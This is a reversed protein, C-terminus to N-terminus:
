LLQLKKSLSTNLSLNSIIHLLYVDVGSVMTCVWIAENEVSNISALLHFLIVNAM